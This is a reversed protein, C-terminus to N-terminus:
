QNTGDQFIDLDDAADNEDEFTRVDKPPEEYKNNSSKAKAPHPIAIKWDILPPAFDHETKKTCTLELGRFSGDKGVKYLVLLERREELEFEKIIDAFEDVGPLKPNSKHNFFKWRNKSKGCIPPLGNGQVKLVKVEYGKHKIHVGYMSLEKLDYGKEKLSLVTKYRMTDFLRSPALEEGDAEFQGLAYANGKEIARFVDSMLQELYTLTREEVTKGIM